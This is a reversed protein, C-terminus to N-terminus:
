LLIHGAVARSLHASVIPISITRDSLFNDDLGPLYPGGSTIFELMTDIQIACANKGEIVDLFEQKKRKVQNRLTSFHKIIETAGHFVTTSTIYYLSADPTLASSNPAALFQKYTSAM